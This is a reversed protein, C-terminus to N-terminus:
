SLCCKGLSLRDVNEFNIVVNKSKKIEDANVSTPDFSQDWLVLVKNNEQIFNM